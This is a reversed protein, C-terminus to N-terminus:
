IKQKLILYIVNVCVWIWMMPWLLILGIFIINQKIKDHPYGFCWLFNSVTFLGCFLYLAIFIALISGFIM